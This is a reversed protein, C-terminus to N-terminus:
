AYIVDTVTFSFKLTQKTPLQLKRNMKLYFLTAFFDFLTYNHSDMKLLHKKYSLNFYFQVQLLLSWGPTAIVSLIRMSWNPM